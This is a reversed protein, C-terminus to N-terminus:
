VTDLKTIEEVDVEGHTIIEEHISYKTRKILVTSPEQGLFVPHPPHGDEELSSEIFFNFTIKISYYAALICPTSSLHYRTSHSVEDGAGGLREVSM